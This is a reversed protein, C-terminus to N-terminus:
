LEVSEIEESESGVEATYESINAREENKPLLLTPGSFINYLLRSCTGM